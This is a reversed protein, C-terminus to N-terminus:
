FDINLYMKIDRIREKTKLQMNASYDMGEELIDIFEAIRKIQSADYYDINLHVHSYLEWAMAYNENGLSRMVKEDLDLKAKILKNDAIVRYTSSYYQNVVWYVVTFVIVIILVIISIITSIDKYNVKDPNVNLYILFLIMINLISLLNIVTLCRSSLVNTYKYLKNVPGMLATSIGIAVLSYILTFKLFPLNELAVSTFKAPYYGYKNSHMIFIVFISTSILFLLLIISNILKCSKM